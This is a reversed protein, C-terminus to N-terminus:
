CSSADDSWAYNKIELPKDAGDPVLQKASVLISREGTASDHRVVDFGDPVLESTEVTTYQTGGSLWKSPVPEAIEFEKDHFIRDISLLASTEAATVQAACLIAAGPRFIQRFLMNITM